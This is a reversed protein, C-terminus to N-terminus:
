LINIEAALYGVGFPGEYSYIVSETSCGDLAGYMMVFSRTGCQGAEELLDEGISKISEINGTRVYEVLTEDFARAGPHFGAPADKTLRHSLDGSAIYIVNEDSDQAAKRVCIGFNYLEAMPMFPTSIHVLKCSHNAKVLEHNIFFLPVVAGHDLKDSIRYQRKEHDSLFGASIGAKEAYKSIDMALKSNNEFDLTIEPHGFNGFDGTLREMDSITIFDSFCPAHPTSIVITSPLADVVERAIKQCAKITSNAISERGSGIGPVIIPPHPMIFAKMIKGM